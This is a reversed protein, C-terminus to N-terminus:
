VMSNVTNFKTVLNPQNRWDNGYCKKFTTELDELPYDNANINKKINSIYENFLKTAMKFTMGPRSYLDNVVNIPFEQSCNSDQWLQKFYDLDMAPIAKPPFCGRNLALRSLYNDADRKSMRLAQQIVIESIMKQRPNRCILTLNNWKNLIDEKTYREPNEFGSINLHTMIKYVGDLVIINICFIVLILVGIIFEVGIKM